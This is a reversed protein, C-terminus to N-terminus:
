SDLVFKSILLGSVLSIVIFFFFTFVATRLSERRLKAPPYQHKELENWTTLFSMASAILGFATGVTAFITLVTGTMFVTPGSRIRNAIISYSHM